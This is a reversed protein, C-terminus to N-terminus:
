DFGGRTVVLIAVDDIAAFSKNRIGADSIEVRQERAHASALIATRFDRSENDARAHRSEADSRAGFHDSRMRDAFQFEFATAHRGFVHDARLAITQTQTQLR